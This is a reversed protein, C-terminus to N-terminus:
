TRSCACWAWARPALCSDSLRRTEARDSASPERPSGTSGYRAPDPRRCPQTM